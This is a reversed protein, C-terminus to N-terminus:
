RHEMTQLIARELREGNPLMRSELQRAAPIIGDEAAVRRVPAALTGWLRETLLSAIEAGIGSSGTGEELTVARRSRRVAELIDDIPAPSLRGLLVVDVFIEHEILMRRATEMALRSMGGYTILTVDAQKFGSLSLTFTAYPADTAAVTFENLRGSSPDLRPQGYLLKNEIIVTPEESELVAHRYFREVDHLPGPAAVNLGPIGVLFKELSQSHTPGYGRGGGMPTRITVPSSTQGNYMPGFKTIHNVIQDFALAIFDGFMIEAIPRLGRLAMGGCIGVIAAESIPTPLVRDPWRTSLGKSIKFAGGYPDLLDEGVLHVREDAEFIAHLAHNIASAMTEGALM